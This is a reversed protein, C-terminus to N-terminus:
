TGEGGVILSMSATPLVTLQLLSIFVQGVPTLWTVMPGFFLGTATGLALALPVQQPLSLRGNSRTEGRM